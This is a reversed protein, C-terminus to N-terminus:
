DCYGNPQSGTVSVLRNEADYGLTYNGGGVNNRQTQNGNADYGYHEGSSLDTVPPDANGDYYYYNVGAKISLNGTSTDYTYTQQSYNGYTGGTAEASALRDLASCRSRVKHALDYTFRQMQPNDAMSDNLRHNKRMM